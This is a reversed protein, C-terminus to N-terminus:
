GIITRLRSLRELVREPEADAPISGFTLPVGSPVPEVDSTWFASNLGGGVPMGESSAAAVQELTAEPFLAFHVMDGLSWQMDPTSPLQIGKLWKYHDALNWIPQYLTVYEAVVAPPETERLVVGTVPQGAFARLGDALIMAVADQDDVSVEGGYQVDKLQLFDLARMQKVWKRPADVYLVIPTAPFLSNMGTLVESLIEKPEELAMVKRLVFTAKKGHWEKGQEQHNRVWSTFFPMLPVSLVDSQLLQQGQSFVSLFRAADLWIEQEERMFLRQAYDLYDLWIRGSGGLRDLWM